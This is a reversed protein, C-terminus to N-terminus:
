TESRIAAAIKLCTDDHCATEADHAIDGYTMSEAIGACREREDAKGAAYAAQRIESIQAAISKAGSEGRISAMLQYYIVNAAERDERTIESM